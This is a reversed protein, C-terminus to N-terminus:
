GVVLGVVVLWFGGGGCFAPLLLGVTTPQGWLCCGVLAPQERLVWCPALAAVLRVVVGRWVVGVGVSLPFFPPLVLRTATAPLLEGTDGGDLVGGGCGPPLAGYRGEGSPAGYFPPSGALDSARRRPCPS